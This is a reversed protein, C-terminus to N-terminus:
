SFPDEIWQAVPVKLLFHEGEVEGLPEAMSWWDRRAHSVEGGDGSAACPVRAAAVTQQSAALVVGPENVGAGPLASPASRATDSGRASMVSRRNSAAM